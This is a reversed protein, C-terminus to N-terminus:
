SSMNLSIGAKHGGGNLNKGNVLGSLTIQVGESLKTVYSLGVRLNNDVKGKLFSHADLTYQSGVTLTPSSADSAWALSAAWGLNANAKHYVSAFYKSLDIVGGHLKFDGGNYAASLSNTTLKSTSTDYSAQGGLLVGKYGTVASVHATPGAFDLDVDHTSHFWEHKFSTNIKAAKKGTGPAFQIDFDAKLGPLLKDEFVLNTTIVNNTNWKETITMLDSKYKTELGAAVNGTELNHSGDTTFEAGGLSKTKGELKLVGFHFNKNLLDKADKGLDSFKVPNCAM